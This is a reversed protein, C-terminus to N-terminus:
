HAILLNKQRTGSVFSMETMNSKSDSFVSDYGKASSRLASWYAGGLSAGHAWM